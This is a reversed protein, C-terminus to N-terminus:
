EEEVVEAGFHNFPRVYHHRVVEEREIELGIEEIDQEMRTIDEMDIAVGIVRVNGRGTVLERVDIVGTVHHAKEAYTARNEVATSCELFVSLPFGAREYNIVPVYGEIVGQEEMASIRNRITGESVPLKEAMDVSSFDRANQQLLHLIGRDIDDLAGDEM